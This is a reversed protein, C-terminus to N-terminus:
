LWKKSCSQDYQSRGITDVATGARKPYICFVAFESSSSSCRCSSPASRHGCLRVQLHLRWSLWTFGACVCRLRQRRRHHHVQKYTHPGQPPVAAVPGAPCSHRLVLPPRLRFDALPPTWSNQESSGCVACVRCGSRSTAVNEMDVIILVIVQPAHAGMACASFGVFLAQVRHGAHLRRLPAFLKRTPRTSSRSSWCTRWSTRTSSSMSLLEVLYTNLNTPVATALAGLNPVFVFETNASDSRVFRVQATAM